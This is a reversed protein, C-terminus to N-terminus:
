EFEGTAPNYKLRPKKKNDFETQARDMLGLPDTQTPIKPLADEQYGGGLDNVSLPQVPYDNFQQDNVVGQPGLYQNIYQNAETEKAQLRESSSQLVEELEKLAQTFSAEDQAASLRAKAQEGKQGEINTLAGAGRLSEYAELFIQGQAQKIKASGAAAPTGAIVRPLTPNDIDQTGPIAGRFINRAGVVAQIDPSLGKGEAGRMGKITELAQQTKSRAAPLKNNLFEEYDTAKQSLLTQMDKQRQTDSEIRPKTAGEIAAEEMAVGRAIQPKYGLDSQNKANQEYMAKAGAISGVADGYGGMAVPNGNQDYVVGRDFSKAAIAIDNMRQTDGAARAKGYADAIQLAAPLNGGSAQKALESAAIQKKLAFEEEAQLYDPLTKFNLFMNHDSM